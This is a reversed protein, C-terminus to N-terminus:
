APHITKAVFLGLVNSAGCEILKDATRCFTNGRTIVDDILIINKGIVKSSEIRFDAAPNAKKGSLYGSEEDHEKSIVDISCEIGLKDSIYRKLQSYRNVTRHYSSAPIFCVRWSGGPFAEMIVKIKDVIKQKLDESCFGDKFRYVTNRDMDQQITANFRKPVYELLNIYQYSRGM